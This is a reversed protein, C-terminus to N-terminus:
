DDPLGAQMGELEDVDTEEKRVDGVKDGRSFVVFRECIDYAHPLNHSIFIVATGSEALQEIFDLVKRVGSIALATTPEDMIVLEADFYMARAIAVGQKEGGSCFRVEQEPSAIDLGLSQTVSEAEERMQPKDLLHVPGVGKTLERGLFVNQAVSRGEVVAQDQFVTEISLERANNVSSIETHEGKWFIDGETPQHVGAIMEILTSKGAGNDGLLGLIEGPYVQLDVGKLAHVSGYWKHIDKMRLLPEVSDYDTAM